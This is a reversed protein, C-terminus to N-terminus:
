LALEEDFSEINSRSKDRDIEKKQDDPHELLDSSVSPLIILLHPFNPPTTVKVVRTRM